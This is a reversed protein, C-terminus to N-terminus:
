KASLPEAVSQLHRQLNHQLVLGKVLRDAVAVRVAVGDAVDVDRAARGLILSVVFVLFVVLLIMLMMMMLLLLLM